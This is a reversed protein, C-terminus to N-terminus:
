VNTGGGKGKNYIECEEASSANISYSGDVYVGENSTNLLPDNEPNTVFTFAEELSNAQVKLFDMVEWSVPIKFEKDAKPDATVYIAM